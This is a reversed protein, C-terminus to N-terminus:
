RFKLKFLLADEETRFWITKRVCEDDILDTQEKYEMTPNKKFYARLRQRLVVSAALSYDVEITVSHQYDKM